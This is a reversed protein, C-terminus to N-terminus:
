KDGTVPNDTTGNLKIKLQSTIISIFNMTNRKEDPTENGPDGPNELEAIVKLARSLMDVSKTKPIMILMQKVIAEKLTFSDAMFQKQREYLQEDISKSLDLVIDQKTGFVTPGLERAWKRLTTPSISCDRATKSYNFNNAQLIKLVRVQELADTKKPM